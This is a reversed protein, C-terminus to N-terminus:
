PPPWLLRHLWTVKQRRARRRNGGRGASRRITARARTAHSVTVHNVAAVDECATAWPSWDDVVVVLVAGATSPEVVVEWGGAVVAEVVEVVADGLDVDLAGM